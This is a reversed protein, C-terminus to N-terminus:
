DKTVAHDRDRFSINKTVVKQDTEHRALVIALRWKLYFEM